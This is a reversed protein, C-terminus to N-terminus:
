DRSGARMPVVNAADRRYVRRVREPGDLGLEGPGFLRLEFRYSADASLAGKTAILELHHGSLRWRGSFHESDEQLLFSGSSVTGSLSLVSDGEAWRWTGPLNLKRLWRDRRTRVRRVWLLVIWAGFILFPLLSSM